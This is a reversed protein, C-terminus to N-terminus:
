SCAMWCPLRYVYDDDPHTDFYVEVLANWFAQIHVPHALVTHFELGAEVYTAVHNEFRGLLARSPRIFGHQPEGFALWMEGFTLSTPIRISRIIGQDFDLEGSTAFPTWLARPQLGNWLWSLSGDRKDSSNAVERYVITVDAIWPHHRLIM